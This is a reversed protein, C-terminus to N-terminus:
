DIRFRELTSGMQNSRLPNSDFGEYVLVGRAEYAGARVPAGRGDVQNWTVTFTKTEGAIFDLAAPSAPLPPQDDSWQWIVDNANERVVVFDSTRTTTLELTANSNLRNRVSLVMTILEGRAFSDTPEGDANQLKLKTVFSPEDGAGDKDSGGFTCSRSTSGMCIAALGFVALLRPLARRLAAPAARLPEMAYLKDTQRPPTSRM